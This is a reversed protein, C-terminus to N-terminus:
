MYICGSDEYVFIFQALAVGVEVLSIESSDWVGGPGKVLGGVQGGHCGFEDGRVGGAHHDDAFECGVDGDAGGGERAEAAESNTASAGDTGKM